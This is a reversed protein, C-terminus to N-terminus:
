LIDHVVKTHFGGALACGPRGDARSKSRLVGLESLARRSRPRPFCQRSPRADGPADSRHRLHHKLSSLDFQRWIRTCWRTSSRLADAASRSGISKLPGASGMVSRDGVTVVTGLTSTIALITSIGGISCGFAIAV